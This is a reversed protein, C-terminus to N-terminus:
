KGGGVTLNNERGALFAFLSAGLASVVLIIGTSIMINGWGALPSVISGAWFGSAGMFASATGAQRRAADMALTTAVTFSLGMMFCLGFLLIEFWVVTVGVAMAAALAASCVIMGVCSIVLCREPSGFKVSVTAGAGIAVANAAFFLSFAFASFGYHQQIIFPSAAIYAFLIAMAFALELTYFLYRRNKLVTKFMTFSEMLKEKSRRQNSLSERFKFCFGSLVIGILLLIVFIGRWGIADLVAGGIVPAAIPAVGNIAGVIALAKALNRRKFKDTAISRAIVIGGSAAIGQLFRLAVFIEITPAFICAFTAAIFLFLSILLPLRRGYKDSLPGFVLQGFALGLMSFTLGTQVMSVSTDFYKVMAPLSPLYMDTVFPGFATLLGLFIFIFQASNAPVKGKTKM